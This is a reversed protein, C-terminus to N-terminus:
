GQPERKGDSSIIVDSGRAAVDGLQCRFGLGQDRAEPGLTTAAAGHQTRGRTHTRPLQARAGRQSQNPRIALRWREWGGGRQAWGPPCRHPGPSEGPGPRRSVAQRRRPEELSFRWRCTLTVLGTWHLRCPFFHVTETSVRSLWGCGSKVLFREPKMRLTGPLQPAPLRPSGAWGGSSVWEDPDLSPPLGRGGRWSRGSPWGPKQRQDRGEETGVTWPGRM